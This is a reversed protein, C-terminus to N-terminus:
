IGTSFPGTSTNHHLLASLAKLTIFRQYLAAGVDDMVVARSLVAGARGREWMGRFM